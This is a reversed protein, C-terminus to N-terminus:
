KVTKVEDRHQNLWNELKLRWISNGGDRLASQLGPLGDLSRNNCEQQYEQTKGSSVMKAAYRSLTERDKLYPKSEDTESDTDLALLPVGYGCSTQVKFVDLKIVARAGAVESKGMRKLYAPFEPQDWEIVSGTAFLRMIRPSADFSCFMLTIRGNERLHSITECGSGTSDIYAVQNPDLIALCSDPLGKPSLNIHRGRLPASAVFFVRQRLAWQGLDDSISEFFKGM